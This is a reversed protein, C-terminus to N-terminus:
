PKENKGTEFIKELWEKRKKDGAEAVMGFCTKKVPRFGCFGLTGKSIATWFADNYFFKGYWCPAGQTYIVRASRGKLLREWKGPGNFKFGFGPLLVRDFYGKLLAPSSVWWVPSIVVLHECWKILEQQKELDPELEQPGSYGKHLVPDFKLDYLNVLEVEHGSSKAGEVYKLSIENCFSENNPNGNLVLIKM